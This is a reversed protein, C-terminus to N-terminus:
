PKRCSCFLLCQFVKLEMCSRAWLATEVMTSPLQAVAAFSQKSLEGNIENRPVIPEIATRWIWPRGYHLYRELEPASSPHHLM